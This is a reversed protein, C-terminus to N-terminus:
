TYMKLEIADLFKPSQNQWLGVKKNVGAQNGDVLMVDDLLAYM